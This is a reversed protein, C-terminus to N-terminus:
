PNLNPFKNMISERLEWTAEENTGNKWKVLVMTAPKNHRKILRRDLIAIPQPNQSGHEDIGPLDVQVLKTKGIKKKLRSVHFVNHLKAGQPLDLKYAVQGVRAIIRYPGYYKASLKHKRRAALSQQRYPQLKLFVKDAVVFERDTRKKDAYWKMREQAKTLNDKLLLQTASREQLLNNVASDKTKSYQYNISPPPVSYLAQLPTM